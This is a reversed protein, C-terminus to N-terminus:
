AKRKKDARIFKFYEVTKGFIDKEEKVESPVWGEPWEIETWIPLSFKAMELHAATLDTGMLDAGMLDAGMLNAVALDARQLKAERLDAGQLKAVALDAKQLKAKTLDAGHLKAGGLFAGQLKAETLDARQLEAEILCAGQLKAEVLDARQLQAKILAAGQLDAQRLYANRLSAGVLIAQQLQAERLDAKSLDIARSHGPFSTLRVKELDPEWGRDKERRKNKPTRLDSFARLAATVDSTCPAPDDEEPKHSPVLTLASQANEMEQEEAQRGADRMFSCLLDQVPFYHGKPDAMALERLAFIGAERVPLSDDSLMAAAKAFRDAYQGKQAVFIQQQAVTSRWIALPLGIVGLLILGLNRLHAIDNPNKFHSEIDWGAPSLLAWIESRFSWLILALLLLIAVVVQWRHFRRSIPAMKEKAPDIWKASFYSWGDLLKRKQKTLYDLAIAESLTARAIDM